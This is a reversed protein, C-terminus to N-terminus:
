EEGPFSMACDKVWVDYVPHEVINLSPNEKFLWGSFIRTHEDAGRELVDVQVFAGTEQPFEHPATRECNELRVIVPGQEITEGTRIEFDQSVNNRKNLLGITAVREAIPTAGEVETVGGEGAGEGAGEAPEPAADDLPVAVAEADPDAETEGCAALVLVSALPILALRARM